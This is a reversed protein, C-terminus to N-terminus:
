FLLNFYTLINNDSISSFEVVSAQDTLISTIIIKTTYNIDLTYLFTAFIFIHLQTSGYTLVHESNFDIM